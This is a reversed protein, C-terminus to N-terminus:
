RRGLPRWRSAEGARGGGGSCSGGSALRGRFASPGGGGRVGAQRGAMRWEGRREGARRRLHRQHALHQRRRLAADRIAHLDVVARPAGGDLGPHALITRRAPSGRRPPQCRRRQPLPPPTRWGGRGREKGARRHGRADGGTEESRWAGGATAGQGRGWGEASVSRSRCRRASYERGPMYTRTCPWRDVNPRAWSTTAKLM